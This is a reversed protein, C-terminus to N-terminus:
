SGGTTLTKTTQPDTQGDRLITRNIERLSWFTGYRSNQQWM